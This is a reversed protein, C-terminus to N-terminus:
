YAIHSTSGFWKLIKEGIGPVEVHIIYVGHPIPIGNFDKMDWQYYPNSDNKTKRVVLKGASTYISINAIKPLNIIRVYEDYMINGAQNGWLFPNPVVKITELADTLVETNNTEPLLGATSFKFVPFNSNITDEVEFENKALHYPTAVRLKVTLDCAMFDYNPNKYPIACWMACTWARKLSTTEVGSIEYALLNDYIYKCSDYHPANFTPNGFNQNNGMIYIYHKGGWIPKGDKYYGSSPNWMMDTGNEALLWSDEGFVINLREGTRQDIAYGPFWSMGHTGDNLSEGEKDVSPSKRLAFKHANGISLPNEIPTQLIDYGCEEDVTWENERMEVVCCKTWKSKDDTIVLDVSSLPEYRLINQFNRASTLSIGYKYSNTFRYPAWTGGLINEFYEKDDWSILDNYNPDACQTLGDEYTGVRIWNSAERCDEDSVFQLWPKSPDEFVISADLFGNQHSNSNKAGAFNTQAVSISFGWEPILQEYKEGYPVLTESYITDGASNYIKYQFPEYFAASLESNTCGIIGTSNTSIDTFMLTYNDPPVNLPDIIKIDIPAKNAKYERNEIRWPSGQMIKDISENSLEIINNANGLGETMTIPPSYGYDTSVITGYNDIAPIHPIVKYTKINNTSAIYPERNGHWSMLANTNYLFTRNVGYAIATYYYEKQNVLSDNGNKFIDKEIVFTHSTGQDTGVVEQVPLLHGTIDDRYFNVIDAVDDHIDCQFVQRVNDTNHKNLEFDISKDKLQFIQYGQFNYYENCPNINDDCVLEPDKETYSNLYNNSTPKNSIHVILKKDLEIINLDPADPGRLIRFCSNFLAQAKDDAKKVAEVSAWAGGTQARAYVVGFTIDNTAGPEFTVPGNSIIFRVDRPSNPTSGLGMPEEESWGPMVIGNQGYGCPDTTPSGPFLYNTPINIDAGGSPHGTGGYSLHVGDLWTASLYGYKQQPSNPNLTAHNDGCGNCGYYMFSTAGWRENDIIGDQFNLGNINGNLIDGKSCNLFIDNGVTDWSTSNDSGDSDQYLGKFIDIGCAPPQLGYGPIGEATQDNDDGNYIYGLGRSVDMGILDDSAYGLDSDTWLGVYSETFMETSRNIIEYEYFTMDNIETNSKYAFAQARVEFGMAVRDSMNPTNGNDNFVFWIAQDGHLHKKKNRPKLCEEDDSIGDNPFEFYPFDGNYPNYYGDKDVDWFPALYTDYGGEPGHAPWNIIVDPITYNPYFENENCNPDVTCDYWDRFEQVEEKTISWMKDYERCISASTTAQNPATTTLPGPSFDLHSQRFMISAARIQGNSDKGGIWISGAFLASVGGGAPVEYGAKGQLDWWMDGISHLKTRVNNINLEASTQGPDCEEVTRTPSQSYISTSSLLFFVSILFVSKKM